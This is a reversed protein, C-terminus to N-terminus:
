VRGHFAPPVLSGAAAYKMRLRSLCCLLSARVQATVQLLRAAPLCALLLSARDHALGAVAVPALRPSAGDLVSTAQAVESTLGLWAHRGDGGVWSLDTLTGQPWSGRRVARQGACNVAAVRQCGTDGGALLGCEFM